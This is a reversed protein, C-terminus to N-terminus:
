GTQPGSHRSTTSRKSFAYQYAERRGATELFSLVIRPVQRMNPLQDVPVASRRWEGDVFRFEQGLHVFPGWTGAPLAPIPDQLLVHRFVNRHSAEIGPPLPMLVTLPQGFSYVARVRGAVARHHVDSALKLAFLMAMAGGLSHGCVHHRISGHLEPNVAAEVPVEARGPPWDQALQGDSQGPFGERFM